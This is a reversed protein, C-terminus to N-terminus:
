AGTYYGISYGVSNAGSLNLILATNAVLKLERREPFTLALGSGQTQGLCRLRNGSDKLIITTATASENQLVLHTIYISLGTGPAAVITNDGSTSVTGTKYSITPKEPINRVILGQETGAPTSATARLAQLNTGDSAGILTADTPVAEGTAVVSPNSATITGDVELIAVDPNDVTGASTASLARQRLVGTGDIYPATAM